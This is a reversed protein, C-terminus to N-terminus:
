KNKGWEWKLVKTVHLKQGAGTWVTGMYAGCCKVIYDKFLM